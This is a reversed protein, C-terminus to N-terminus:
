AKKQSKAWNGRKSKRRLNLEEVYAEAHEAVQKRTGGRSGVLTTQGLEIVYRYWEGQAGEPPDTKEIKSVSYEDISLLEDDDISSM